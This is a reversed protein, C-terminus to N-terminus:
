REAHAPEVHWQVRKPLPRVLNDRFYLGMQAELQSRTLQRHMADPRFDRYRIAGDSASSVLQRGDNTFYVCHTHSNHELFRRVEKGTEVSWLRVTKDDSTSAIWKEDQSIAIGRLTDTHGTFRQLIEGSAVDWLLVVETQGSCATVLRQGDSSFAIAMIAGTHKDFHRLPREVQASINWLYVRGDLGGSALRHPDTPHFAVRIPGLGTPISDVLSRTLPDWLFLGRHRSGGVLRSGDANFALDRIEGGEYELPVSAGSNLDHLEMKKDSSYIALQRSSPDFAGGKANRLDRFEGTHNNRLAVRYKGGWKGYIAIWKEDPSFGFWTVFDFWDNSRFSDETFSKPNISTLASTNVQWLRVEPGAGSALFKGTRDFALAEVEKRHGELRGMWLGSSVSWVRTDRKYAGTVLLDGNPALSM